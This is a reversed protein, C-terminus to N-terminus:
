SRRILPDSGYKNKGSTGKFFGLEIIPWLSVIPVLLLLTFWGSKNRDHARKISLVFAPCALALTIGLYLNFNAQTIFFETAYGIIALPIGGYWYNSRGIRGKTSAYFQTANSYETTEPEPEPEIPEEQVAEVTEIVDVSQQEIKIEPEPTESPIEGERIKIWHEILEANRPYIRKNVNHRSEYLERLSYTNYNIESM